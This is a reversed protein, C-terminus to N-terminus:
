QSLKESCAARSVIGWFQDCAMEFAKVAAGGAYMQQSVAQVEAPPVSKCLYAVAKCAGIQVTPANGPALRAM